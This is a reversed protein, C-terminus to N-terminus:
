ESFLGTSQRSNGLPCGFSDRSLPKQGSLLSASHLCFRWSEDAGGLQFVLQAESHTETATFDASMSQKGPSLRRSIEGEATWPDVGKQALARMPGGPDGSATVSLRYHEGKQLALGNFGLIADWPQAVGGAVLGCLAGAKYEFTINPTAWWEGAVQSQAFTPDPLMEDAAANTPTVHAALLAFLGTMARFHTM